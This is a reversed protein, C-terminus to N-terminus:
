SFRGARIADVLPDLDDPVVDGADTFPVCARVAALARRLPEGLRGGGRGHRLEIAQAAVLLEIAVLREACAVQEALRRAALPAMSARDEIGEAQTASPAETSVPQALLRAEIALAQAPWTVESLASEEEHGVPALGDTLGSLPAQLLKLLRENASTVAPVLAIRLYDLAAALPLVEYNAVSIIRDEDTVVLPNEQSANLELALLARVHVLAERTAGLVAAAGRFSLPDQLNRAAGPRWLPSGDLLARLADLEHRLGPLPRARDVARDLPSLNAAFGELDLAAATRMAAVLREADAVALAALGTSFANANLLALAEKPELELDGVLGAALDALPGLDAVGLSGVPRVPPCAGANLADLLHQVLEPRVGASGRALGNALRLTTARVVDEAVPAGHAVRHEAILRRTHRVRDSAPIRVRKRVGVGTTLGYVAQRDEQLVRKVVERGRRMTAAATGALGVHAGHRAVAVVEALTLSAGDLIVPSSPVTTAYAARSASSPAASAMGAATM